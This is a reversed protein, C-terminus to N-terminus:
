GGCEEHYIMMQIKWAGDEDPTFVFVYDGDFREETRVGDDDYVDSEQVGISWALNGSVFSRTERNTANRFVPPNQVLVTRAMTDRGYRLQFPSRFFATPQLHDVMGAVDQADWAAQFDKVLSDTLTHAQVAPATAAEIGADTSWLRAHFFGLGYVVALASLRVSVSRM